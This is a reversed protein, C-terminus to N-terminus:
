RRLFALLVFQPPTSGLPRKPFSFIGYAAQTVKFGVLIEPAQGRNLIVQCRSGKEHFYAEFSIRGRQFYKILRRSMEELALAARAGGLRAASDAPVTGAIRWDFSM